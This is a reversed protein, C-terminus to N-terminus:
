NKKRKFGVFMGLGALISGMAALVNENDGTQPLQKGYHEEVRSKIPMKVTRQTLAASTLKDTSVAVKKQSTIVEQAPAIVVPKVEPAKIDAPEETAKVEESKKADESSKTDDSKKSDESPKTDDSKKSDESPKTDDSKKADESPKAEESKKSDESPKAEESKKSDESPKAEESKKSDESPKTDDSKKSDESSKTDDSKKSDESPKAEESKKSDESPKAEEAKKAEESKKAETLKAQAEALVQKAAALDAQAKELAKQADQNNVTAIAYADHVSKNSELRAKADSVAKNVANIQANMNDITAQAKAVVKKNATLATDAQEFFQRAANLAFGTIASAQISAQHADQAEKLAVKDQAHKADYNALATKADNLTRSADALKANAATLAANATAMEDNAHDLTKQATTLATQADAQAKSAKQAQTQASKANTESEAATKEAESLTRAADNATTVAGSLSRQANDLVTQAATLHDGAESQSAKAANLNDNATEMASKAANTAQDANAKDDSSKQAVAQAATLASTLAKMKDNAVTLQANLDTVKATENNIDENAAAADRKAQAKDIPSVLKAQFMEPHELYSNPATIVHTSVEATGLNNFSIGFYESNAHDTQYLVGLLDSMHHWEDPTMVLELINYYVYSKLSDMSINYNGTFVWQGDEYKNYKEYEDDSLPYFNGQEDSKPQDGLYWNTMDEYYQGGDKFGYQGMVSTIVPVDHGKDDSIIRHDATYGAAIKDAAEMFTESVTVPKSGVQARVQNLLDAAFQALELKQEHTLNM